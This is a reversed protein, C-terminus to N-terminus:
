CHNRDHHSREANAFRM